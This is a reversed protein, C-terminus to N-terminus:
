VSVQALMTSGLMLLQGQGRCLSAACCGDGVHEDLSSRLGGSPHCLCPPSEWLGAQGSVM